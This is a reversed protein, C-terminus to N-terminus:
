NMRHKFPDVFTTAKVNQNIRIRECWRRSYCCSIFVVAEGTEQSFFVCNSCEPYCLQFQLGKRHPTPPHCQLVIVSRASPQSAAARYVYLRVDHVRGTDEAGDHSSLSDSANRNDSQTRLVGLTQCCLSVPSLFSTRLSHIFLMWMM